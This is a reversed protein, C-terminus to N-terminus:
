KDMENNKEVEKDSDSLLKEWVEQKEFQKLNRYSNGPLKTDFGCIGRYQCYDCATRNKLKYPNIKTTGDIIEKGLGAIKKRVYQKMIEFQDKSAVNSRKTPFGDKNIEVPIISSKSSARAKGEENILTLDMLGAVSMDNNVLGNMKLENLISNEINEEINKEVIPDDIHYYFIGAPIVTKDPNKNETIELATGLYVVLQLQLGYYFSLIDLSNNGSKYDIIKVYVHEDDEYTDLRDIRGRLKMWENDSLPINVSELNDMYSFQLEFSDPEFVGKKVHECLAWVTRKTIREVRNIIYENRKSSKLITNGYELTAEEVSQSVFNERAEDTVTHWNYESDKLKKSFLDIAKHFINGLDPVGIHYEQREMLELGYNMFHAYACAAYRELRTVSNSMENGYLAHAVAKTLGSEENSYFAGDILQNLIKRNEAKRYYWSYLEKWEDTVDAGSYNRLGESLYSIGKRTGLIHSLDLTNKNEDKIIMKPYLKMVKHILYSPRISKGEGNVKSYTIYLKNQPKTLNLYIYFQETYASQKKTPALEMNNDALLQRELDSIIGGGSNVKPIIGDNVGIFFLAKIDKLRTREIDGVVVQDIGPPILGVKAEEFGSTLIEEYEKLTIIEDGLLEVIKDLLEMVIPYVQGFEKARLIDGDLKFSDGYQQLKNFINQRVIFEYLGTSYELVTSEKPSFAERIEELEENIHNRIRNIRILDLESKSPYGRTWEERWRKSGRIGLAIVYNEIYDVDEKKMDIMGCRLYRFMSEYSYDRQIVDLTARIFEVFPNNLIDRKYDIFAAIGAIGFEKDIIRGYNEIDGTVIAIDKYRYNEERILKHIQRIVFAVESKADKEIHIEIDEQGKNYSESPYRFLNHELFCLPESERFRYPIHEGGVYIDKSVPINEEGAIDKLKLITKKSLHFLKFEGDLKDTNERPDITVTVIVKKAYKLLETILKYQSPTFGTFGDLCITSNKIIQSKEIMGALVDLIEEATIYKDKLFNEFGTYVTILDKIKNQLMPKHQTVEIMKELQEPRISYQYMESLISKLEGIFGSKKLNSQFLTLHDKKQEVVKRLIMSKGTDELIIRENEGFEDFVRYALRLFSLIDINRIGHHPHMSVLDKQTQMTFQEPVIILYNGNEYEMSKQIVEQYLTYSKGSGSSGLILQLSM